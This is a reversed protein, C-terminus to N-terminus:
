EQGEAVRFAFMLRNDPTLIGPHATRRTSIRYPAADRSAAVIRGALYYEVGHSPPVLNKHYREMHYLAGPPVAAAIARFDETLARAHQAQLVKTRSVHPVAVAFLLAAALSAVPALRPARAALWAFAHGHFLLPIGFYYIAQFEHFAVFHKMPIAWVLGSALATWSLLPYPSKGALL